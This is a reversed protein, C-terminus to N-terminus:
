QLVNMQQGAEKSLLNKVQINSNRLKKQVFDCHPTPPNDKIYDEDTEESESYNVLAFGNTTFVQTLASDKSDEHSSHETLSTKTELVSTQQKPGKTVM